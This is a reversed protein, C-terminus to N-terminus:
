ASEHAIRGHTMSTVDAIHAAWAAAAAIGPFDAAAAHAEDLSRWHVLDMWRGEGLDVLAAHLLGPHAQRVAAIM